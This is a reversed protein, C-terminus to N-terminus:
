DLVFWQVDRIPTAAFYYLLTLSVVSVVLFLGLVIFVRDAPPRRRFASLSFAFSFLFNALLFLFFLDRDITLGLGWLPGM